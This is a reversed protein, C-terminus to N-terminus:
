QKILKETKSLWNMDMATGEIFWFPNNSDFSIKIDDDPYHVINATSNHSTYVELTYKEM